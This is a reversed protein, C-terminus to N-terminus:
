ERVQEFSNKEFDEFGFIDLVGIFARTEAVTLLSKNIRRVLWDFLKSYLAKSLTDRSYEAEVKKLPIKYISNSGQLHRSPAFRLGRLVRAVLM